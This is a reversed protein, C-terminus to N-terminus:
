QFTGEDSTQPLQNTPILEATKQTIMKQEHDYHLEVKGLNFGYKGTCCLLCDNVRKGEPLVHHTHGGLVIDVEPFQKAIREDDSLGLHSLVIVIDSQEKIIPLWKELEDFPNTIKWDM